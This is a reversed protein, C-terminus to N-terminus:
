QPIVYVGCTKNYLAPPGGGEIGFEGFSFFGIMPVDEGISNSINTLETEAQDDLYLLRSVCDAVLTLAAPKGELGEKAENAASVSASLLSEKSGTMIRVISNEPIESVFTISQDELSASLPDRVVYEGTGMPIGLPHGSAFAYFQSYDFQQADKDLHNMYFSLAPKGDIEKVVKGEARTVVFAQGTPEWGHMLSIGQPTESVILAAVAADTLIKQNIIQFSKKFHLNDASGGGFFRFFSGFEHFAETLTDSVVGKTMSADAFLLLVQNKPHVKPVTSATLLSGLSKGTAVADQSMNEGLGVTVKLTDSAIIAVGLGDAYIKNNFILSPATCGILPTDGLLSRIGSTAAQEDYQETMFVIALVPNTIKEMATHTAEIGAQYSDGVHQSLGIAATTAM